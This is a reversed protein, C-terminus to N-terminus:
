DSPKINSEQVVKSFIAYDERMTSRMEEPSSGTAIVGTAALQKRVEGNGLAQLIDHNLTRLISAPTRPAALLGWWIELAAGPVGAEAMTPVNPLDPHRTKGTVALAKVQGTRVHPLVAQTVQFMLQTQGGLLDAQAPPSGKYPVHTLQIGTARAFLEAVLHPSTGTGSSGYALPRSKALAVLEPVTSVPVGSNVELVLPGTCLIAVPAFEELVADAPKRNVAAQILHSTSGLLLTYGDPPSKSVAEAAIVGSAGPKNEVIVPQKWMESLRAGVARAILDNGSGPSFGVIIRVPRVPFAPEQAAACAAFWLTTVALVGLAVRHTLNM